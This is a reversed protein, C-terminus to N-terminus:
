GSVVAGTVWLDDLNLYQDSGANKDFWVKLTHRGPTLRADLSVKSWTNWDATAPFTKGAAWTKGDLESTRHADGNGASYRLALNTSGGIANFTFTM